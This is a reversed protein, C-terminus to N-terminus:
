DAVFSLVNHDRAFLDRTIYMATVCGGSAGHVVWKRADTGSVLADVVGDVVTRTHMEDHGTLDNDVTDVEDHAGRIYEAHNLSCHKVNVTFHCHRACSDPWWDWVSEFTATNGFVCVVAVDCLPLSSKRVEVMTNEYVVNFLM